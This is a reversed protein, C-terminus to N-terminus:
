NNVYEWKYGGAHVSRGKCVRTICECRIGTQRQAERTSPYKAIFRGDKSHQIVAKSHYPANTQNKRIRIPLTGYNSNYKFTCWELNNVNNNKPNEDKHNISPYNNPNPIFAFAVLRHVFYHKSKGYLSLIVRLYGDRTKELKLMRPERRKVVKHYCSYYSVSRVNGCDSVEYFGEYGVVPKWIEKM